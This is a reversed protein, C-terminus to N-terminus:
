RTCDVYLLSYGNENCIINNRETEEAIIKGRGDNKAISSFSAYGESDAWYVAIQIDAPIRRARLIACKTGVSCTCSLFACRTVGLCHSNIIWPGEVFCAKLNHKSKLVNRLQPCHQGGGWPGSVKVQASEPKSFWHYGRFTEKIGAQTFHLSWCSGKRADPSGERGNGLVQKQEQM